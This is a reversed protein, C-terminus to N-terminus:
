RQNPEDRGVWVKEVHPPKGYWFGQLHWKGDYYRFDARAPIIADSGFQLFTFEGSYCSYKLSDACRTSSTVNVLRAYNHFEPRAAILAGAQAPTLDPSHTARIAWTLYAFLVIVCAVGAVTVSLFVRLM